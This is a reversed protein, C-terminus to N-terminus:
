AEMIAERAEEKQHAMMYVIQDHATGMAKKTAGVQGDAETVVAGLGATMKKETQEM